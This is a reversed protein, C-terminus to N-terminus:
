AATVSTKQLRKCRWCKAKLTKSSDVSAIDADQSQTVVAVNSTTESPKQLASCYPCRIGKPINSSTFFTADLKTSNQKASISEFINNVASHENRITTRMSSNKALRDDSVPSNTYHAKVGFSPNTLSEISVTGEKSLSEMTPPIMVKVAAARLSKGLASYEM